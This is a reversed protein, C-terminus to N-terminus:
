REKESRNDAWRLNVLSSVFIAVYFLGAVAELIVLLRAVPHIPSIDGYGVTTLTVFSFYATKFFLHHWDQPALGRFAHPDLVMLMLYLTTWILGLLLYLSLSGVIKNGDVRGEFLIQRVALKFAGAFFLFLTLYVMFLTLKGPYLRLLVMMVAQVAALAYAIRRWGMETHLSKIGLLVMAVLFISFLTAVASGAFAESLAGASLIGVLSILLYVFNNRSHISAM